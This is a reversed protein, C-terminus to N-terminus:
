GEYKTNVYQILDTLLCIVRRQQLEWEQKAKKIRQITANSKSREYFLENIRRYHEESVDVKDKLSFKYIDNVDEKTDKLAYGIICDGLNKITSQTGLVEQLISNMFETM